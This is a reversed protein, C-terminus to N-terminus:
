AAADLTMCYIDSLVKKKETWTYRYFTDLKLHKQRGLLSCDLGDM